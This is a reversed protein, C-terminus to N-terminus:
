EPAELDYFRDRASLYVYRRGIASLQPQRYGLAIPSHITFRYPCTECGAHCEAINACTRPKIEKARDIKAQTEETSYRPDAESVDHVIQEGGKCHVVIDIGAKWEPEILEAAKKVWHDVFRCGQRISEFSALPANEGSPGSHSAQLAPVARAAKKGARRSGEAALREFDDRSLVAGAAAANGEWLSVPKPPSSKHNLTGAVRIVRALDSTKDLEWGFLTKARRRVAGQFGDVLSQARAREDSNSICLPEELVWILLLGNGTDVIMTPAPVDEALLKLVDEKSTPRPKDGAHGDTGVDFDLHAINMSAVDETSGRGRQPAAALLGSAVYVHNGVALVGALDAAREINSTHFAETQFRKQTPTTWSLALYGDANGAVSRLVALAQQKADM